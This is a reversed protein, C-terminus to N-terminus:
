QSPQSSELQQGIAQLFENRDAPSVLLASHTAWRIELRDLSLAPAAVLSRSPRVALIEDLPIRWRFPGSFVHLTGESVMYYTSVLLWAPLAVSVFAILIATVVVSTTATEFTPWLAMILMLPAAISLLPFWADIASRFRMIKGPFLSSM